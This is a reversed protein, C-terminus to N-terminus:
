GRFVEMLVGVVVGGVLFLFVAAKGGCGSKAKVFKEPSKKRLEAERKEVVDKAEALDYGGSTRAMKIATVKHGTFIFQDITEWDQKTLAEEKTMGSDPEASMAVLGEFEELFEKAGAADFGTFKRVLELARAKDGAVVAQRVQDRQEATLVREESM